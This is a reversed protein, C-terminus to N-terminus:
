VQTMVMSLLAYSNLPDNYPMATMIGPQLQGQNPYGYLSMDTQLPPIGQGMTPGAPYYGPFMMGVPISQSRPNSSTSTVSQSPQYPQSTQRSRGETHSNSRAPEFGNQPLPATYAHSSGYAPNYSHNGRGRYGGRGREPRGDRRNGHEGSHERDRWSHVKERASDPKDRSWDRNRGSGRERTFDGNGRPTYASSDKTRDSQYPHRISPESSHGWGGSAQESAPHGEGNVIPGGARGTHRSSSRSSEDPRPVQDEGNPQDTTAADHNEDTTAQEKGSPVSPKRFSPISEARSAPRNGGTPVSAGRAGRHGESRRGRDQEGSHRPLPPPGMSGTLDQKEVPSSAHGGRGNSDRGRAGGRGGRRAASPPLQTEFKATPVFRMPVWQKGHSKQAQEKSDPKDVKEHVSSKRREEVNSTEPTPWSQTDGALPPIVADGREPRPFRGSATDKRNNARANDVTKGDKDGSNPEKSISKRKIDETGSPTKSVPGPTAPVATRQENLERLKAEQAEKRQQWINVAPLPAAKLPKEATMSPVSVKEWDDDVEKSKKDGSAEVSKERSSSDLSQESYSRGNQLSPRAEDKQSDQTPDSSASDAQGNSLTGDQALPQKPLTPPINEKNTVEQTSPNSASSDPNSKDDSDAALSSSKTASTSNTAEATNLDKAGKESVAPGNNRPTQQTSTSPTLGKAAQAYSFVPAAAGTGSPNSM